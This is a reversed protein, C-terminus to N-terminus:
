PESTCYLCTCCITDYKVIFHRTAFLSSNEQEYEIRHVGAM